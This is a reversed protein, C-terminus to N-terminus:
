RRGLLQALLEPLKRLTATIQELWPMAEIQVKIRNVSTSTVYLRTGKPVIIETREDTELLVGKGSLTPTIKQVVGWAVPGATELTLIVKAWQRDGNYLIQTEDLVKTFYTQAYTRVEAKGQDAQPTPATAINRNTSPLPGIKSPAPPSSSTSLRSPPPRRNM